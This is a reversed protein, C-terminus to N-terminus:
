SRDEVLEPWARIVDGSADVTIALVRAALTGSDRPGPITITDGLGYDVYPIPGTLTSTEVTFSVQTAASQDLQARAIRRATTSSSTSGLDLSAEVVGISGVGSTDQTEIWTGNTLRTLISTFRASVSTVQYSLLSGGADGLGLAVTGRKDSGCRQWANLHLSAPAVAVDMGRESLQATVDAGNVKGIDFVFEDPGTWAVGDTDHYDSFGFTLHSPGDDGRDVAEPVLKRLVQAPYWGPDPADDHVRWDYINTDLLVSGLDGADNTIERVSCIFAIPNNKGTVPRGNRVSVAFQHDGAGLHIEFRYADKWRLTDPPGWSDILKGDVYFDPYNDATWLVRVDTADTLTLTARFYNFAGTPQTVSPGAFSIWEANPDFSSFAAPVRRHPIDGPAQNRPVIWDSDVYWADVASMFGFLRSDAANADFGYEPYVTMDALMSLLGPQNEFRLWRQGDVALEIGEDAIRCGFTAIKVGSRIWSLKVIRRPTILPTTADDLRVEFTASGPQSLQDQWTANRLVRIVALKTLGTSDYISATVSDLAKRNNIVPAAATFNFTLAPLGINVDAASAPAPAALALNLVPLAVTVNTM